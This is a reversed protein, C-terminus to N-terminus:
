KYDPKEPGFQNEYHKEVIIFDSFCDTDRRGNKRAKEM